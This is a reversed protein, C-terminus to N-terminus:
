SDLFSKLSDLTIFKKWKTWVVEVGNTRIDPVSYKPPSEDSGAAVQIM